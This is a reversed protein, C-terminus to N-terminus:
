KLLIIWFPNLVKSSIILSSRLDLWVELATDCFVVIQAISDSVSNTLWSQVLHNCREWAARNLDDSDPMPHHWQHVRIQEENGIIM